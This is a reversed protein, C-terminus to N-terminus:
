CSESHYKPNASSDKPVAVELLANGLNTTKNVRPLQSLTRAILKTAM